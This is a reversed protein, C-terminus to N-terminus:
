TTLAIELTRYIRCLGQVMRCINRCKGSKKYADGFCNRGCVPDMVCGQMLGSSILLSM